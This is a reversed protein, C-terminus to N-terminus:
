KITEISSVTIGMPHTSYDKSNRMDVGGRGVDIREGPDSVHKRTSEKTSNRGWESLLFAIRPVL